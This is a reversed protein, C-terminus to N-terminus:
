DPNERWSLKKVGGGGKIAGSAKETLYRSPETKRTRKRLWKAKHKGNTKM